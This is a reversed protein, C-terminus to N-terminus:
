SSAKEVGELEAVDQLMVVYDFNPMQLTVGPVVKVVKAGQLIQGVQYEQASPSVAQDVYVAKGNKVQYLGYIYSGGRM